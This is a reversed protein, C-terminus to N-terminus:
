CRTKKFMEEINEISNISGDLEMKMLKGNM